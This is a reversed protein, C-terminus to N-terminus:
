LLLDVGIEVMLNRMALLLLPNQHQDKAAPKIPTCSLSNFKARIGMLIKLLCCEKKYSKSFKKNRLEPNLIGGSSANLAKKLYGAAQPPSNENLRIKLSFSM